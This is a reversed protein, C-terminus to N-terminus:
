KKRSKEVPNFLRRKASAFRSCYVRGTELDVLVACADTTGWFGLRHAKHFHFHKVADIEEKTCGTEEVFAVTVTTSKHHRSLKGSYELAFAPLSALLENISSVGGVLSVLCLEKTDLYDMVAEKSLLTQNERSSYSAAFDYTRGGYVANKAVDFYCELRRQLLALYEESNM